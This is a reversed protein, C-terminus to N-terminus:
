LKNKAYWFNLLHTFTTNAHEIDGWEHEFVRVEKDDLGVFVNLARFKPGFLGFGYASCQWIHEDYVLRKVERVKDKSKFDVIIASDHSYDIKGGYKEAAFSREANGDRLTIGYLALVKEVKECHEQYLLSTQGRIYDEIAAHLETGRERAKLSQAKSDEIVRVAYDDLTEGVKQPLTLASELIQRAKWAELGPAAAAKLILTVSPLWDNERADRITTSRENGNKGIVTHKPNGERDYWHGKEAALEKPETTM